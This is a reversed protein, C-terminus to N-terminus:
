DDLRHVDHVVIGSGSGGVNLWEKHRLTRQTDRLGSEWHERMSTGSFEYDKAQGEYAMQQYVMQLITAKPLDALRQKAAREEDNLADEPVKDLVRKLLEDQKLLRRFYDTVLRTRSSYQIDKQRALV